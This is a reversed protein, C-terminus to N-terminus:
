KCDKKWFTPPLGQAFMWVCYQASARTPEVFQTPPAPNTVFGAGGICSTSGPLLMNCYQTQINAWPSGGVNSFFSGLYTQLTKSSYLTGDSDATQFGNAWETGWWVLYVAPKQEVGIAGAGANGGHWVLDNSTSAATSSSLGWFIHKSSTLVAGTDSPAASAGLTVAVTVAVALALVIRTM